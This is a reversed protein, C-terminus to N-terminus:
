NIYILNIDSKNNLIKNLHEKITDLYIKKRNSNLEKIYDNDTKDLLSLATGYKQKRYKHLYRRDKIEAYTINHIDMNIFASDIILDITKNSENDCHLALIASQCAYMYRDFVGIDKEGIYRGNKKILDIYKLHLISDTKQVRKKFFNFNIYNRIRQDQKFLKDISTQLKINVDKNYNSRFATKLENQQNINLSDWLFMRKIRSIKVGRRFLKTIKKVTLSNYNDTKSDLSISILLDKAYVFDYVKFLTDYILKAEMLKNETIYLEAKNIEIYYRKLLGQSKVNIVLFFMVLMVLYRGM